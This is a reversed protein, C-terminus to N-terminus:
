AASRRSLRPRCIASLVRGIKELGNKMHTDPQASELALDNLSIVGVPKDDHDVVPLRRVQHDAMLKEIEGLKQEPHAAIVQKTMVTSVAIEALPRGQTYAAMCIDRDTIMGVLKGGDDVIPLAGFDHDWMVKAADNLTDTAHCVAAPHTMLDHARM